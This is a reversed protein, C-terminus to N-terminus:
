WANHNRQCLWNDFTAIIGFRYNGVPRRNLAVEQFTFNGSGVPFRRVARNQPRLQGERGGEEREGGTVDVGLSKLGIRAILSSLDIDRKGCKDKAFNYRPDREM